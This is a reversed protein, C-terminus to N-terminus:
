STAEQRAINVWQDIFAVVAWTTWGIAATLLVVTVLPWGAIYEPVGSLLIGLGVLPLARGDVELTTRESVDLRQRL